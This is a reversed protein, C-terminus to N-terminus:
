TRCAYPYTSSYSSRFFQLRDLYNYSILVFLLYVMVVFTHTDICPKTLLLSLVKMSNSCDLILYVENDDSPASDFEPYFTLM